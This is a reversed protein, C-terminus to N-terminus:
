IDWGLSREIAKKWQKYRHDRQEESIIPKTVTAENSIHKGVDWKNVATGAAIAAGLATSVAMTPRIVELGILDAQLQLFVENSTMGGDVHLKVLHFKCDKAM